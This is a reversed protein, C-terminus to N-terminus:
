TNNQRLFELFQNKPMPRAYFFGQIYDCGIRIIQKAQEETEVGEAVIKKGLSKIIKVYNLMVMYSTESEFASQVISKDLKFIEVPLTAIRSLNSYGTGFDDMSFAVGRDILTTINEDMASNIDEAVTETIELNIQDPRIEFKSLTKLVSSALNTQICDVVSLNVEAYELGLEVATSTQLMECVSSLVFSDIAIVTGNREAIPMFVAPSIFGLQPDRLRLLAECSSFRGTKTNYIPQYYVELLGDDLARKVISDIRKDHEFHKLNLDSVRLVDRNHRLLVKQIIGRVENFKDLSDVEDPFGISYTKVFLKMEQENMVWPEKFRKKIQEATREIVQDDPDVGGFIMLYSGDDMYFINGEPCLHRLYSTIQSLLESIMELSSGGIIVDLRDIAVGFVTFMKKQTLNNTIAFNLANKTGAGSLSDSYESPNQFTYVCLLLALSVSFEFISSSKTIIRIPIGALMLFFYAILSLMKETSFGRAYKIYLYAVYPFYIFLCIHVTAGQFYRYELEGYENFYFFYDTLFGSLFVAMSYMVPVFLLAKNFATDFEVRFIAMAYLTSLYALLYTALKEIIVVANNM